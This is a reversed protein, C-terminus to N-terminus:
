YCSVEREVMLKVEGSFTGTVYHCSEELVVRLLGRKINENSSGTSNVPQKNNSNDDDDNDELSWSDIDKNSM